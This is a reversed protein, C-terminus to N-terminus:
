SRFVRLGAFLAKVRVKSVVYKYLVIPAAVAM